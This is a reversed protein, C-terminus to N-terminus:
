RKSRIILLSFYDLKQGRLSRVDHVLREEPWGVRSVYVAHDILGVEELLDLVRDIVSAVKLLVVTDFTALATQLGTCEYTAPLIALREDRDALPVRVAAAAAQVSSVGPVVIVAVDPCIDTLVTVVHVFTSYLLPDGETLFGVDRGAVLEDAIRRANIRWQEAMREHDERMAFVLEVIQQRSPDLYAEVITRAYSPAGPRAVPVYVLSLERLLRYAKLTLLEPDGPGVGIGYLTGVTQRNM